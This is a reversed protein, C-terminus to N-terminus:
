SRGPDPVEAEAAVKSGEAEGILMQAQGEDPGKPPSEGANAHPFGEIASMLREAIKRAVYLEEPSLKAGANAAEHVTQVAGLEPTFISLWRVLADVSPDKQLAPKAAVELQAHRAEDVVPALRRWIEDLALRAAEIENFDPYVEHWLYSPM